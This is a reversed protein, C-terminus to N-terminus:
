RGISDVSSALLELNNKVTPDNPALEYAKLFNKRADQL